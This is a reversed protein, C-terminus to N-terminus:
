LTHKDCLLKQLTKGVWQKWWFSSLHFLDKFSGTLPAPGVWHCVCTPIFTDSVWTDASRTAESPGNHTLYRM